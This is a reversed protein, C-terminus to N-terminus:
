QCLHQAYRVTYGVSFNRSISLALSLFSKNKKQWGYLLPIVTKPIHNKDSYKTISQDVKARVLSITSADEDEILSVTKIDGNQVRKVMQVIMGPKM